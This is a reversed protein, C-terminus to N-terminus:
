KETLRMIFFPYCVKSVFNYLDSECNDLKNSNCKRLPEARCNIYTDRINRSWLSINAVFVKNTNKLWFSSECIM